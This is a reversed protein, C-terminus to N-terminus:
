VKRVITEISQGTWKGRTQGNSVFRQGIIKLGGQGTSPTTLKVLAELERLTFAHYYRKLAGHEPSKWPILVDHRDYGPPRLGFLMGFHRYRKLWQWAFLNWNFLYARGGPKLVRAIERFAAQRKEQSPIHHLVAVAWVADFSADAFPLDTAEGVAFRAREDRVLFRALEIMRPSVDLGTYFAGRELALGAHEGGGCGIELLQLRGSDRLGEKGGSVRLPPVVDGERLNLSPHPSNSGQSELEEAWEKVEPRVFKRKQDYEVAITDYLASTEAMIKEATAKDMCLTYYLVIASNDGWFM